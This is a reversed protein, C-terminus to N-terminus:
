PLLVPLVIKSAKGRQRYVRHTAKQFDSEDALFINDVFTQPNRDVLPFWTSQIQVMVRHGKKFTHLVDQLPVTVATPQNPTFPKPVEYGDRYRGRLVESRVMTQYGGLQVGRRAGPPTPTDPPLVDILKVVWDADGGTTSVWLDATIPGAVTLDAALPPTQYVLVDPRRAAFRQDETMYERTMGIAIDQTFPVPKRPDSVYEDRAAPDDPAVDRLTEGDGLWLTRPTAPPPWQSFSRWQNEGTAFVSAEPLPDIKADKLHHEFFPLEIRAQYHESTRAGFEIDGLRDGPTRAWGGHGWPGMVLLNTIGPNQREVAAYVQLPGHLDEADFWGGVTLVAPAVNKLRPRLDRAQWYHDRNPHAVIDQWFKVDRVHEGLNKLPGKDLFWQYGDLTGHKFGPNFSARPAPRPQGFAAYFNFAHPLFFAGHHHFDDFYFDAIPAQPSVARLAPHADIMGAAAYFGPYSIGYLGVRGNHGPVNALLWEITDFTDSSEDIDQKTKKNDVHPRVDVFEGGSMFAGRVDQYVFVYGAAAYLPGPGLATPFQDPGYPACSYPTRRLLIPYSRTTDKPAYIATFLTVGDRMPIQVERKTYNAAIFAHLGPPNPTSTPPTPALAEVTCVPARPPPQVSSPACAALLCIGSTTRLFASPM